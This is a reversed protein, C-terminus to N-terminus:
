SVSTAPWLKLCNMTNTYFIGIFNGTLLMISYLTATIMWVRNQM